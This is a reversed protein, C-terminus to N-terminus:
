LPIKFIQLTQRIPRVKYSNAERAAMVAATTKNQGLLMSTVTTIMQNHAAYSGATVDDLYGAIMYTVTAFRPNELLRNVVDAKVKGTYLNKAAEVSLGLEPIDYNKKDPIETTGLIFDTSVNFTKAICIVSEESLKETTGNLFRGLAIQLSKIIATVSKIASLKHQGGLFLRHISSIIRIKRLLHFGFGLADEQPCQLSQLPKNGVVEFECLTVTDPFVPFRDLTVIIIDKIEHFRLSVDPAFRIRVDAGLIEIFDVPHPAFFIGKCRQFGAAEAVGHNGIGPSEIQFMAVVDGVRGSPPHPSKHTHFSHCSRM